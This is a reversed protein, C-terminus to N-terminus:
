GGEKPGYAICYGKPNIQGQVIKCANPPAWNVCMDCEQGDKPTNQYQVLEQAVKEDQAAARRSATTAALVGLGTLALNRLTDRKGQDIM